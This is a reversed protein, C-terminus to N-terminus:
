AAKVSLFHQNHKPFLIPTFTDLQFHKYTQFFHFGCAVRPQIEISDETVMTHGQWHQQFHNESVEMTFAQFGTILSAGSSRIRLVIHNMSFIATVVLM